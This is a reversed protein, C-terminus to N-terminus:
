GSGDPGARIIRDCWGVYAVCAAFFGAILFLVVLDKM